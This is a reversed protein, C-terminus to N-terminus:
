HQQEPVSGALRSLLGQYVARLLEPNHRANAGDLAVDATVLEVGWDTLEDHLTSDDSHGIDAVVMAPRFDPVLERMARIDDVRDTGATEIDEHALNLTVVTRRAAGHLAESVDPVLFHTLVSTYWSGPGLVVMDAEAIAAVTARPVSPREPEVRFGRIRGPASAVEAQGRVEVVGDAQEVMAVIELPVDAQPLVRGRARLLRAVWDLGDVASGTHEWLSAILLNGLAHGNLPGDSEFRSQLVDRWTRGWETDECLASLAMRLDGPPLVGLETRLRGSSGGDDAVTVIATLSPSLDRLATLTAYLGHGGGLAVISPDPNM